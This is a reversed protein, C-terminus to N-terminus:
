GLAALLSHLCVSAGELPLCAEDHVRPLVIRRPANHKLIGGWHAVRAGAQRRMAEVTAGSALIHAHPFAQQLVGLGFYAQPEAASIYITTLRKGSAAITHALQSADDRLFQANVLIADAVGSLLLSTSPARGLVDLRFTELPLSPQVARALM